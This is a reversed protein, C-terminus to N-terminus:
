IWRSTHPSKDSGQVGVHRVENKVHAARQADRYASKTYFTQPTPGLNEIVLGGPIDDGVVSLRSRGHPCFPWDGVDFPIGCDPCPENM